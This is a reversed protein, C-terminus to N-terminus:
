ETAASASSTSSSSQAEKAALAKELVAYIRPRAKKYHGSQMESLPSYDGLSMDAGAKLLSEVIQIDIDNEQHRPNIAEYLATVGRGNFENIKVGARILKSVVPPLSRRVAYMLANMGDRDKLELNPNKTLLQTVIDIYGEEIAIMLATQSSHYHDIANIDMDPLNILYTVFQMDGQIVATLFTQDAFQRSVFPALGKQRREEIGKLITEKLFNYCRLSVRGLPRISTRLPYGGRHDPIELSAKAHLLTQIIQIRSDVDSHRCDNVAEHLATMGEKNQYNVKAGEALLAEVLKTYGKAAAEMLGSEKSHSEGYVFEREILYVGPVARLNRRAVVSSDEKMSVPKGHQVTNLTSVFSPVTSSGASM